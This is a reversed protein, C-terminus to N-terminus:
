SRSADDHYAPIAREGGVPDGAHFAKFGLFYNM